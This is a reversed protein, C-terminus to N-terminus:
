KNHEAQDDMVSLTCYDSKHRDGRVSLNSKYVSYTLFM